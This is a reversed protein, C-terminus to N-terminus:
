RGAHEARKWAEAGRMSEGMQLRVGQASADFHVEYWARVPHKLLASPNIGTRNAVETLTAYEIGRDLVRAIAEEQYGTDKASNIEETTRATRYNAGTAISVVAPM